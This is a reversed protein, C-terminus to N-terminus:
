AVGRKARVSFWAGMIAPKPAISGAKVQALQQVGNLVAMRLAHAMTVYLCTHVWQQSTSVDNIERIKCVCVTENARLLMYMM